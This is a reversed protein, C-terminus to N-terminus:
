ITGSVSSAKSKKKKPKKTVVVADPLMTLPPCSLAGALEIVEGAQVRLLRGLDVYVDHPSNNKFKAM